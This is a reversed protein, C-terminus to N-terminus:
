VLSFLMWLAMLIMAGDEVITVTSMPLNFGTGLCACQIQKKNLVSKVVGILSITMVISVIINLWLLQWGLLYGIGFALEFFPYIYGWKMWKAAVIDYSMYSMAFGSLDLLKFFSFALFFLGMFLRMGMMLSWDNTLHMGITTGLILYILVLILPKYDKWTKPKEKHIVEKNSEMQLTYKDQYTDKLAQNMTKTDLHKNMEITIQGKESTDIKSIGSINKLVKAVKQGCSECTAGNIKYTHKM